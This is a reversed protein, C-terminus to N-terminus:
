PRHSSKHCRRPRDALVSSFFYRVASASASFESISDPRATNTWCWPGLPSASSTEASCARRSIPASEAHVSGPVSLRLNKNSQCSFAVGLVVRATDTLFLWGSPIEPGDASVETWRRGSRPGELDCIRARPCMVRDHSRPAFPAFPAFLDGAPEPTGPCRPGPQGRPLVAVDGARKQLRDSAQGSRELADALRRSYSM